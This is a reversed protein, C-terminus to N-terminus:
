LGQADARRGGTSTIRDGARSSKTARDGGGRESKHARSPPPAREEDAEDDEEEGGLYRGREMPTDDSASVVEPVSIGRSVAGVAQELASQAAGAATRGQARLWGLLVGGGSGDRRVEDAEEAESGEADDENAQVRQMGNPTGRKAAGGAGLAARGAALLERGDEILM